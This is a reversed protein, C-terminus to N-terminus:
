KKVFTTQAKQILRNQDASSRRRWMLVCVPSRGNEQSIQQLLNVRFCLMSRCLFFCSDMSEVIYTPVLPSSSFEGDCGDVMAGCPWCCCISSVVFLPFGRMWSRIAACKGVAAGIAALSAAGLPNILNLGYSFNVVSEPFSALIGCFTFASASLVSLSKIEFRSPIPSLLKMSLTSCADGSSAALNNPTFWLWSHFLSM